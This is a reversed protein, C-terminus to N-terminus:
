PSSVGALFAAQRNEGASGDKTSCAAKVVPGAGVWRMFQAVNSVISFISVGGAGSVGEVNGRAGFARM